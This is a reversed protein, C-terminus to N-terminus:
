AAERPKSGAPVPTSDDPSPCPGCYEWQDERDPQAWQGWGDSGNSHWLCNWYLPIAPGGRFRRIWHYGSTQSFPPVYRMRKLARLDCESLLSKEHDTIEPEDTM